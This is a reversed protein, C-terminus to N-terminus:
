LSEFLRELGTIRTKVEMYAAEPPRLATIYVSTPCAVTKKTPPTTPATNAMFSIPAVYAPKEM